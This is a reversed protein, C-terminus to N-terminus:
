REIHLYVVDQRNCTDVSLPFSDCPFTAIGTEACQDNTVVFTAEFNNGNPELGINSSLYYDFLCQSPDVGNYGRIALRTNFSKKTLRVERYRHQLDKDFLALWVDTSLYPDGLINKRFDYFLIAVTGDEAVSISPLFTQVDLSDINIPREKSWTKGGDKSLRMVCGAGKTPNFQPDAYVIYLYGNSHNVAMDKVILGTIPLVPDSSEPDVAMVHSVDDDVTYRKWTNGGDKSRWLYIKDYPAPIIDGPVHSQLVTTVVLTNHRDPLVVLQNLIPRPTCSDTDDPPFSDILIPNTWTTGGDTSRQFFINQNGTYNPDECDGALCTHDSSVIYVTNKRYRDGYIQPFDLFHCSGDDRFSSSVQDWSIGGDASKAVINGEAVNIDPKHDASFLNYSSSLVYCNGEKDFTVSPFYASMFNDNGKYNTAGQCRSLVLDSQNWSKGGDMTYLTAVSLTASGNYVANTLVDQQMVIVMNKPNKPNIALQPDFTVNQYFEYGILDQMNNLQLCSLDSPLPSTRAIHLPEKFKPKPQHKHSCYATSCILLSLGLLYHFKM